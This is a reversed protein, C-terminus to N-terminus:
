RVGLRGLAALLWCARPYRATLQELMELDQPSWSKFLFSCGVMAIGYVV